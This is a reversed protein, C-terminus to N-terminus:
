KDVSTVKWPNIKLETRWYDLISKVTTGMHIEPEWGTLRRFKSSDPIQSVVDSPRILEKDIVIKINERYPYISMAVLSDLLSKITFETSGGINFVDGYNKVKTVLAWYARVADRVDIFTRRSDLNGVRVEPEQLGLEIAAIQKAFASLVFVDGRRAGTHSFLRTRLTKLGYSLHYQYGLMDEAVKSVAYPSAPRLPTLETTPQEAFPVEGYVESSSAIQIIPDFYVRKESWKNEIIDKVSRIAELLNVTGIVNRNITDLPSTFSTQVYSQAALHFVIDPKSKELVRELSSFDLLDGELLRVEKICNKLNDRPSRWRCLGYVKHKEELSLIYEALHSGVFGTIGTLLVRM